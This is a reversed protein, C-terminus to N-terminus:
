FVAWVRVMMEFRGGEGRAARGRAGWADVVECGGWVWCGGRVSWGGGVRVRWMVCACLEGREASRGAVAGACGCRAGVGASRAPQVAGGGWM